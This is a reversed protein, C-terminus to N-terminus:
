VSLRRRVKKILTEYTTKIRLYEPETVAAVRIELENLLNALDRRAEVVESNIRCRKLLPELKIATRLMKVAENDTVEGLGTEVFLKEATLEDGNLVLATALKEQVEISLRRKIDGTALEHGALYALSVYDQNIFLFNIWAEYIKEDMPFAAFAKRLIARYREKLESPLVVASLEALKVYTWYLDAEDECKASLEELYEFQSQYDGSFYAFCSKLALSKVSAAGWEGTIKELMLEANHVEECESIEEAMVFVLWHLARVFSDGDTEFQKWLIERAETNMELEALIVGRVLDESKSAGGRRHLDNWFALATAAQGTACMELVRATEIAMVSNEPYYGDIERKTEKKTELM